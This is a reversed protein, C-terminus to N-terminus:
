PSNTYIKVTTTSSGVVTVGDAGIANVTITCDTYANVVAIPVTFNVYWWFGYNSTNSYYVQSPTSTNVITVQMLSVATTGGVGASITAGNGAIWTPNGTPYSILVTDPLQAHAKSASLVVIILTMLPLMRRFQATM